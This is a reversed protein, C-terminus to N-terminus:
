VILEILTFHLGGLLGALEEKLYTAGQSLM